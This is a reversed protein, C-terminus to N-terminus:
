SKETHPSAPDHMRQRTVARDIFFAPIVLLFGIVVADIEAPHIGISAVGRLDFKSIDWVSAVVLMVFALPLAVSTYPFRRLLPRNM